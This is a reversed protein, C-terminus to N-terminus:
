RQFFGPVGFSSPLLWDGFNDNRYTGGPMPAPYKVLNAYRNQSDLPVVNGPDLWSKKTVTLEAAAADQEVQSAPVRRKSHTQAQANACVLAGAALALILHFTRRM